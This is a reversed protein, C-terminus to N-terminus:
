RYGSYRILKVFLNFCEDFLEDDMAIDIFDEKSPEDPVLYIWNNYYINEDNALCMLKHMAELQAIRTERVWGSMLDSYTLTKKCEPCVYETVGYETSIEAGCNKCYHKM